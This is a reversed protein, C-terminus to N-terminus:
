RIKNSSKIIKNESEMRQLLLKLSSILHKVDTRNVVVSLINEDQTNDISLCAWNKAKDCKYFPSSDYFVSLENINNESIERSRIKIDIEM